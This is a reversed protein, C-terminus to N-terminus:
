KSKLWPYRATDKGTYDPDLYIFCRQIKRFRSRSMNAHGAAPHEGHLVPAGSEMAISAKAPAERVRCPRQGLLHLQFNRITRLISKLTSGIDGFMQGIERRATPSAGNRSISGARRGLLSELISGGDTTVGAKDFAKPSIEVIVEVKEARRDNNAQVSAM